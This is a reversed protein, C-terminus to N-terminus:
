EKMYNIKDIFSSFNTKSFLKLFDELGLQTKGSTSYVPRPHWYLKFKEIEKDDMFVMRDILEQLTLNKNSLDNDYIKLHYFNQVPNYLHRIYQRKLPLSKIEKSDEFLPTDSVQMGFKLLTANIQKPRTKSKRYDLYDKEWKKPHNFIENCGNKFDKEIMEKEELTTDKHNEVDKRQEEHKWNHVIIREKSKKNKLKKIQVGDLLIDGLENKIEFMCDNKVTPTKHTGKRITSHVIDYKNNNLIFSDTKELLEKFLTESSQCKRHDRTRVDLKEQIVFEKLKNEGWGEEPTNEIIKLLKNKLYQSNSKSPIYMGIEILFVKMTGNTVKKVNPDVIQLLKLIFEDQSHIINKIPIIIDNKIDDTIISM